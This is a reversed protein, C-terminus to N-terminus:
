GNGGMLPNPGEEGPMIDGVAYLVAIRKGSEISKPLTANVYDDMDLRPADEKKAAGRLEAEVEDSYKLADVLGAALAREPEFPATDEIVRRMEEVPKKRADAVTQLFGGYVDDLMATTVERFADSM